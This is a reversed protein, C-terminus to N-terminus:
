LCIITGGFQKKIIHVSLPIQYNITSLLSAEEPSYRTKDETYLVGTTDNIAINQQLSNCYSYTWGPKQEM